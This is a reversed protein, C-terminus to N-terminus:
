ATIHVSDGWRPGCCGADHQSRLLTMKDHDVIGQMMSPDMCDGQQPGFHGAEQQQRLLTEEIHDVVSQTMSSDSCLQGMTDVVDEALSLQIAGNQDKDLHKFKKFLVELCIMCAIFSDFNISLKSNVYWMAITQQVQSSLTFGAKKLATRMEHADITGCHNEDTEQYIELYKRIKLWLMKFEVLGLTGTENNDLLSIMNRCTNIDFGDFKIDTWQLFVRNLIEKLNSASIESDQGALREFLSKFQGDEQEMESPHPEQPEGAVVDGTELAVAKKKSFVRLCFEGDQFPELTFPMVLYEGPPLWAWGSVERLNVYTSSCASPRHSLFFDSDLHTDVGSELDKPVQYVAYGISLLGQGLRRRRRRNKQMLGLLVTCSPESSDEENSDDVEDLLIKFQPNTWYTAPYNQCGGATSGRTWCGNFLAMHWKSVEESTLSDPSLNCIELRSFQTLFDEFAMWFEGDEAKKDLEEKLRPDIYNWEPADDSWAGTWEVKGWPNRLRILKEPHGHFDVEEAGTVSYAHSKVLKWSTMAETEAASSVAISCGLLSGARLARRIIQYLNAPAKQLDYFESIGGTFDEFGEVTSGGALAEYSGNLKAYAKELLASWFERGEESHLFLLKGDKTPLRDDVVVDVWEGYQWFQFHFIGAYNKQFSQDKPVVRYLLEESLTLSAIAALLWCDGLGGQCIDTRTAGGIIFEPRLCLETPRKWVIGETQPSCPGLDKYGLASPCAPFEPDKFLVGSDLCQQRLSEFDQGLYKVTQKISGLGKAVAQKKSLGAALTAM